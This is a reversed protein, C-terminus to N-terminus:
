PLITAGNERVFIQYDRIDDHQGLWMYFREVGM